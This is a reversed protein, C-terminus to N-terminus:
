HTKLQEEREKKAQSPFTNTARTHGVTKYGALSRQGHFEGPFNSCHTAIRKELSDEQGLSLVETEWVAPLNKVTQAAPSAKLPFSGHSFHNGM